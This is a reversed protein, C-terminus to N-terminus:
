CSDRHAKSKKLTDAALNIEKTRFSLEEKCAKDQLTWMALHANEESEVQDFFLKITDLIATLPGGSTVQSQIETFLSTYSVKNMKMLREERTTMASSAIVLIAILALTKM